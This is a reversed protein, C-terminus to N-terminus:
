HKSRSVVELLRWRKTRSIPRTRVIRVVDGEKAEGNEDHVKFRIHRRVYKKYRPHKELREMEVTVTKQMKAVTVTGQVVKMRRPAAKGPGKTGAMPAVAEGAQPQLAPSGGEIPAYWATRM